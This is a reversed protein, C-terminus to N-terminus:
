YRCWSCFLRSKKDHNSNYYDYNNFNFYENMCFADWKILLKLNLIESLYITSILGIIKDGFGYDDKNAIYIIITNHM